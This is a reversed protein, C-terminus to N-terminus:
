TYWLQYYIISVKANYSRIGKNILVINLEKVQRRVLERFDGKILVAMKIFYHYQVQIVVIYWSYCGVWKLIQFHQFTHNPM